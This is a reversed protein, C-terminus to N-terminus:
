VGADAFVDLSDFGDMLTYNGCNDWIIWLKTQRRGQYSLNTVGAITGLDNFKLLFRSNNLSKFRVRKGILEGCFLEYESQKKEEDGGYYM